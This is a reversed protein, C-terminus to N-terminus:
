NLLQELAAEAAARQQEQTAVAGSAAKDASQQAQGVAESATKSASQQAQTVAESATKSASQQAQTVAESAAQNASQQAQTVAERATKSASQQAQTVAESAAQNASQQAQTVAESAAQSASQQAQTVADSAAKNASQQAQGVADSATKSASQQAQSVTDSAAQVAKQQVGDVLSQTSGEILQGVAQQPNSLVSLTSSVASLGSGVASASDSVTQVANRGTAQAAGNASGWGQMATPWIPSQGPEAFVQTGQKDVLMVAMQNSDANWVLGAQDTVGPAIQSLAYFLPGEQQLENATKLLNLTTDYHPGLIATMRDKVLPQEFLNAENPDFGVLPKLLAWMLQGAPNILLPAVCGSLTLGLLAVKLLSIIRM